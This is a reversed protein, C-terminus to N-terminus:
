TVIDVVGAPYRGYEAAYNNTIVRFEQIAEPNPAPNGTGRLGATNNGGDLQFNVSGVQARQSGNITTLQEPGGLSNSNENSTVGGTISLLSYLDRNVLPLNLVENQGVTRSLSSSNTEVLPADAVVSVVETVGGPEIVADVRANRGVELAIGTQTFGKFGTLSVELKYQGVPLLRLAYQGASDTTTSRSFQTGVNTATVIATPVAAGTSDKVNGLITGTAVQAQASPALLLSILAAAIRWAPLARRPNRRGTENM